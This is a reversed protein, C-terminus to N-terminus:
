KKHAWQVNKPIFAHDYFRSSHVIEETAPSRASELEDGIEYILASFLLFDIPEIQTVIRYAYPGKPAVFRRHERVQRNDLDQRLLNPKTTDWRYRIAEFEFPTPLVDTDGFNEAHTLAWKLAEESVHFAM